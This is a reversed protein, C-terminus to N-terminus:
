KMEHEQHFKELLSVSAFNPGLQGQTDLPKTWVFFFVFGCSTSIVMTSHGHESTLLGVSGSKLPM